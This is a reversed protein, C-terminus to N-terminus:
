PAVLSVASLSCTQLRLLSYKRSVAVYILVDLDVVPAPPCRELSLRKLTVHSAIAATLVPLDVMLPEDDDDACEILMYEICLSAFPGEGRLLSLAENSKASVDMELRRLRPCLEVFTLLDIDKFFGFSTGGEVFWAKWTRLETLTAGNEDAM